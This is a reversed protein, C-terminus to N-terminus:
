EVVVDKSFINRGTPFHTLTVTVVDGTRLNEWDEGLVAQMGDVLTGSSYVWDTYEYPTSIGYGKTDASGGFGGKTGAPYVKMVTGSSLAYNGFQQDVNNPNGTSVEEIGTGYGWPAAAVNLMRGATWGFVNDSGDSIAVRSITESTNSKDSATWRTTLRLDSTPIPESVSLVTAKFGSTAFLGTNKIEVDMTISPASETSDVLGGAFGSVVAAIIITVVLMLMVGVVPSVADENKM